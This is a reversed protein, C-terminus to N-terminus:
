FTTRIRTNAVTSQVNPPAHNAAFDFFPMTQSNRTPVADQPIDVTTASMNNGITGLNAGIPISGALAALPAPM